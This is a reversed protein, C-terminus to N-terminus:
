GLLKHFVTRVFSTSRQKCEIHERVLDQRLKQRRRKERNEGSMDTLARSIDEMLSCDTREPFGYGEWDSITNDSDYSM